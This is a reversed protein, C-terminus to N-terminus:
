DYIIIKGSQLIGFDADYSIGMGYYDNMASIFISSSSSMTKGSKLDDESYFYLYITDNTTKTQHSTGYSKVEYYDYTTELKITITASGYTDLM